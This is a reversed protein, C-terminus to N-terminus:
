RKKLENEVFKIVNDWYGEKIIISSLKENIQYIKKTLEDNISSSLLIDYQSNNNIWGNSIIDPTLNHDILTKLLEKIQLSIKVNNTKDFSIAIEMLYHGISNELITFIGQMNYETDFEFILIIYQAYDPLLEFIEKRLIDFNEPLNINKTIFDILQNSDEIQLITESNIKAM